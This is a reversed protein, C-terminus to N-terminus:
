QFFWMTRLIKGIVIYKEQQLVKHNIVIDKPKAKPEIPPVDVVFLLVSTKLFFVVESQFVKFM